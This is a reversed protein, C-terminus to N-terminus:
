ERPASVPTLSYGRRELGEVLGSDGGLHMAGVAILLHERGLVAELRQLMRANRRDLLETDFWDRIPSPVGDYQSRAVRMIRQSDGSLYASTLEELQLPWEAANKIMADLLLLQLDAEMRDFVAVQEAATELGIVRQGRRQAALYVETDLVTANGSLPVALTVAAAWPKLRQLVAPELGRERAIRSLEAFRQTGVQTELDQGAPLLSAAGVAILAVGDPVMEVALADVEDLLPEIATMTALVRPDGSHMTGLLYGIPQGDHRIEYLPPHSAALSASLLGLVAALLWPGLGSKASVARM